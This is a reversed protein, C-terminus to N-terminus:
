FQYFKIFSVNVCNLQMLFRVLIEQQFPFKECVRDLITKLYTGVYEWSHHTGKFREDNSLNKFDIRNFFLPEVAILALVSLSAM